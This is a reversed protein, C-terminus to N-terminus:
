QQLKARLRDREVAAIEVALQELVMADIEAPRAREVEQRVDREVANLVAPQEARGLEPPRVRASAIVLAHLGLDRTLLSPNELRVADQDM